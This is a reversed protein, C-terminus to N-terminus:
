KIYLRSNQLWIVLFWWWYLPWCFHIMWWIHPSVRSYFHHFVGKIECLAMSTFMGRWLSRPIGSPSPLLGCKRKLLEMTTEVRSKNILALPDPTVCGLADCFARFSVPRNTIGQIWGICLFRCCLSRLPFTVSYLNGIQRLSCHIGHSTSQAPYVPFVLEVKFCCLRQRLRSFPSVHLSILIGPLTWSM